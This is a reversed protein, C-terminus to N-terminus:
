RDKQEREPRSSLQHVHNECFFTYETYLDSGAEIPNACSDSRAPDDPEGPSPTLDFPEPVVAAGAVPVDHAYKRFEQTHLETEDDARTEEKKRKEEERKQGQKKKQRAARASRRRRPKPM